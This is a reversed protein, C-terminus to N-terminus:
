AMLSAGSFGCTTHTPESSPRRWMVTSPPLFQDRTEPDAALLNDWVAIGALLEEKDKFHRYPATHSVGVKKAVARLSLTAINCEELVERAACLLEKRLDGHHYPKAPSQQLDPLKKSTNNESM